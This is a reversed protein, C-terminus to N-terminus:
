QQESEDNIHRSQTAVSIAAIDGFQDGFWNTPWSGIEGYDNLGVDDIERKKRKTGPRTSVSKTAGTGGKLSEDSSDECSRKATPRSSSACETASERTRRHHGGAREPRLPAAVRRPARAATDTRAGKGDSTERDRGMEAREREKEIPPVGPQKEGRHARGATRSQDSQREKGINQREEGSGAEPSQAKPNERHRETGVDRHVLTALTITTEM